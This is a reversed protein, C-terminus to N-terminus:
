TIFLRIKANLKSPNKSGAEREIVASDATLLFILLLLQFLRQFLEM